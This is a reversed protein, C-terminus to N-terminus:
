RTALIRAVQTNVEQNNTWNQLSPDPELGLCRTVEVLREPWPSSVKKAHSAVLGALAVVCRAETPSLIHLEKKLEALAGARFGALDAKVADVFTELSLAAGLGEHIDNLAWRQKATLPVSDMCVYLLATFLLMEGESSSLGRTPASPTDLAKLIRAIERDLKQFGGSNFSQSSASLAMIDLAALELAKFRVAMMPHTRAWGYAGGVSEIHANLEDYQRRFSRLIAKPETGNLGSSTKFLASTATMLNGACLLGVRDASIESARSWGFLMMAENAQIPEERNLLEDVRVGSHGFAVHGLEHGLVFRLEDTSFDQVLSSNVVVDFRYGDGLVNANYDSSQQVFLSGLRDPIGLILLCREFARHVEPLLEATVCTANGLLHRRRAELQLRADNSEQTYHSGFRQSIAEVLDKEYSFRLHKVDTHNKNSM